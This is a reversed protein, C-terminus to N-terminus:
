QAVHRTTEQLNERFAARLPVRPGAAADSGPRQFAHRVRAFFAQTETLRM